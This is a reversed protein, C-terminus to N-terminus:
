NEFFLLEDMDEIKIKSDKLQTILGADELQKFKRSITEPTTGLYSAIDKRSLPLQVTPKEVNGDTQDAIFFALRRGIQEAAVHTTHRDSNTLRKSMEELLKISIAPYDTLLEQFDKQRITCVETHKVMQAFEEHVMGANFITWEGTFDGPNLVRILQEKGSETLRFLRVMGTHLIFLRNNKEGARYLYEGKKYHHHQVKSGILDMSDTDLHNFIPVTRVCATKGSKGTM